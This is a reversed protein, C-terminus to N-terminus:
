PKKEHLSSVQKGRLHGAFQVYSPINKSVQAQIGAVHSWTGYVGFQKAGQFVRYQSLNQQLKIPNGSPPSTTAETPLSYYSTDCRKLLGGTASSTKPSALVCTRQGATQGLSWSKWLQGPLATAPFRGVGALM